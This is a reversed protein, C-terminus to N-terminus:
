SAAWRRRTGNAGTDVMPSRSAEGCKFARPKKAVMSWGTAPRTVMGPAGYRKEAVGHASRRGAGVSPCCVASTSASTPTSAAADRIPPVEHAGRTARRERANADGVEGPHPGTRVTRELQCVQAGVHDPDLRRATEAHRAKQRGVRAVLPRMR